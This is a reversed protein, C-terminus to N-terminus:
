YLQTENKSTALTFEQKKFAPSKLNSSSLDVAFM